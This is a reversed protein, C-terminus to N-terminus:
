RACPSDDSHDLKQDISDGRRQWLASCLLAHQSLETEVCAFGLTRLLPAHDFVEYGELRTTKRFFEYLFKLWLQARWRQWGGPPSQFDAILWRAETKASRAICPLLTDITKSTFCDLFFHTVILDYTNEPYSWATADTQIFRVRDPRRELERALRTRAQELMAGSAELCDVRLTPNIRLLERLFRGDGEGLILARDAKAARHVFALRCRELARGFALYELWRYHRALPDFSM